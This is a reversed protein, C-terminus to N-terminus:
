YCLRVLFFLSICSLTKKSSLLSVNDNNRNYQVSCPERNMRMGESQCVKSMTNAFTRTVNEDCKRPHEFCIIAWVRIDAGRFFKKGRMDWTGDKPVVKGSDGLQVDPASLVRGDVDVMSKNISM